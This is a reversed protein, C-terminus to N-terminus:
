NNRLLANTLTKASEARLTRRDPTPNASGTPQQTPALFHKGADTSIFENVAETVTKGSKTIFNGDQETYGSSLRNIMLESLIDPHLVQPIGQIASMVTSDFKMKRSHAAEQERDNKANQLETELLALRATLANDAPAKPAEPPTTSISSDEFLQVRNEVYATVDDLLAKSHAKLGETISSAILEKIQQEDM